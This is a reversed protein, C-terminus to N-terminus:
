VLSPYARDSWPARSLPPRPQGQREFELPHAADLRDHPGGDADVHPCRDDRRVDEVLHEVLKAVDLRPEARESGVALDAPEPAALDALLRATEVDAVDQGGAVVERLRRTAGEVGVAPAGIASGDEVRGPVHLPPGDLLGGPEEVAGASAVVPDVRAAVDDGATMGVAPAWPPDPDTM